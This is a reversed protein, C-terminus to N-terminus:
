KGLLLNQRTGLYDSSFDKNSLGWVGEAAIVFSPVKDVAPAAIDGVSPPSILRGYPHTHWNFIRPLFRGLISNQGILWKLPGQYYTPENTSTIAGANPKGADTPWSAFHTGDSYYAGARDAADSKTAHLTMCGHQSM